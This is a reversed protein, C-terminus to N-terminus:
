AATALLRKAYEIADVERLLRDHEAELRKLTPLLQPLNHEVMCRATVRIASELREVMAANSESPRRPTASTKLERVAARTIAQTFEAPRHSM